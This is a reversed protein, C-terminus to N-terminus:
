SVARAGMLSAVIQSFHRAAIAAGSEVLFAVEPDRLRYRRQRGDRETSLLGADVLCSLHVSTRGQSLGTIQRCELSTLEGRELLTRVLRVRTPDALAAFLRALVADVDADPREDLAVGGTLAIERM